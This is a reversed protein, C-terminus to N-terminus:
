LNYFYYFQRPAGIPTQLTVLSIRWQPQLIPQHIEWKGHVFVGANFIVFLSQNLRFYFIWTCCIILNFTVHRSWKKKVDLIM